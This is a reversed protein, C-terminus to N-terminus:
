PASDGRARRRSDGKQSDNGHDHTSYIVARPVRALPVTREYDATEIVVGRPSRRLAAPRGQRGQVPNFPVPNFPTRFLTGTGTTRSLVCVLELRPTRNAYSIGTSHLNM